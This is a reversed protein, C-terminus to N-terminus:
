IEYVVDKREVVVKWGNRKAEKYLKANPNFCIPNTVLELFPIDSETDGVGVSNELTLNEKAVARRVINAKNTILHDDIINGTFQESPGTEYVKGYVKDFGLPVCFKDLIGKPSHSIALLYYGRRKLDKILDRTFQYVKNKHRLIVSSAAVEFDKYAVGKINKMFVKVMAMIYAGYDGKRELWHVREKEYEARATAPILGDEIMVEVLEILLSSRFITGDVDFIAVKKPKTM